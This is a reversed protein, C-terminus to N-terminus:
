IYKVFRITAGQPQFGLKANLALMATNVADNTTRLTLYGHQRTYQIGRLKLLTAVGKGRYERLVGTMNIICYGDGSTLASYGVYSDDAGTVAIFCAEPIFHEADVNERAFQELSINTILEGYPIDEWLTRDLAYLKAVRDADHVLEDYTKIAIGLTNVHEELGIYPTFDFHAVDLTSDIRRWEEIFGRETVFRMAREHKEWVETYLERPAFPEIHELIASYLSAGVGHGQMDPQVRINMKFKGERHAYPDHGVTAMGIVPHEQFETDEAVFMARHFQPDRMADERALEEATKPWDPSEV